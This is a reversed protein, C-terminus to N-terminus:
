VGSWELNQAAIQSQWNLDFRLEIVSAMWWQISQFIKSESSQISAYGKELQLVASEFFTMGM